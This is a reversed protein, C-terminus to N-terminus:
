QEHHNSPFTDFLPQAEQQVPAPTHFEQEPPAFLDPAFKASLESQRKKIDAEHEPFDAIGPLASWAKRFEGSKELENAKKMSDHFKKEKAEKAKKEQQAKEKEAASQKQAEALQKGFAEMNTLLGSATKLPQQIAEFFGSDLESPTGKLTYPIIAAKAPDDCQDNTPLVSVVITEGTGPAILVQITGAKMAAIQRFFNTEM